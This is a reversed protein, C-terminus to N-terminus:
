DFRLAAYINNRRPPVRGEAVVSTKPCAETLSRVFEDRSPFYHIKDGSIVRDSLWCTVSAPNWGWVWDKVILHGGPAVLRGADHLVAARQDLPIHHLVDCLVVLGFSQPQSDALEGALIVQFSVSGPDGRYLSGPDAGIDIGVIACKPMEIALRETLHGDGCGIELVREVSGLRSVTRAFDDLDIWWHRYWRVAPDAASGLVKRIVRRLGSLEVGQLNESMYM